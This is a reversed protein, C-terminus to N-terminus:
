TVTANVEIEMIVNSYRDYLHRGTAVNLVGIFVIM